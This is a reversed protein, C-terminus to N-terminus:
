LGMFGYKRCWSYQEVREYTMGTAAQMGVPGEAVAGASARARARVGVKTCCWSTLVASLAAHLHFHAEEARDGDECVEGVAVDVKRKVMIGGVGDVLDWVPRVAQRLMELRSATVRGRRAAALRGYM